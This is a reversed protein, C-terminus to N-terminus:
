FWVERRSMTTEDLSIFGGLVITYRVVDSLLTAHAGAGEGHGHEESVCACLNMNKKRKRVRAWTASEALCISRRTGSLLTADVGEGRGDGRCVVKGGAGGLTHSTEIEEFKPKKDIYSNIYTYTSLADFCINHIRTDSLFSFKYKQVLFLM